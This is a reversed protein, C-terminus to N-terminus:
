EYDIVEDSLILETNPYLTESPYLSESPFLTGTVTVDLTGYFISSEVLDNVKIITENEQISFFKNTNFLNRFYEEWGGISAGDIATIKYTIENGGWNSISVSEILFTSNIEFLSKDVVLLQGAKFGSTNTNFNIKDKLEGYKDLLGSAFQYAQDNTSITTEVTLVEYKGSTDELIKRSYIESPKDLLLFIDRLGIYTVQIRDASGLVTESSDQTIINSNYTFYWKKDTDLGNVGVLSSDVQTYVSEGDLKIFISPKKAIPFRVIFSRSEGDPIPSPTENSQTATEGKGGKVYQINRYDDLSTEQTFNSHQLNSDLRYPATYTGRYFYNLQKNEDITWCFSPTLTIIYDLADNCKNYNFVAKSILVGEEINGETVGDEALIPLIYDIILDRCTIDEVSCVVCRKDALASNDICQIDYFIKNQVEESKSISQIIGSFLIETDNTFEVSAGTTVTANLVDVIVFSMTSRANIKNNISWSPEILVQEGNITLVRSM